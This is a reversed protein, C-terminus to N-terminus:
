KKITKAPPRARVILSGPCLIEEDDIEKKKEGTSSPDSESPPPTRTSIVSEGVRILRLLWSDVRGFFPLTRRRESWNRSAFSEERSDRGHELRWSQFQCWDVVTDVLHHPSPDNGWSVANSARLPPLSHNTACQRKTLDEGNQRLQQQETRM